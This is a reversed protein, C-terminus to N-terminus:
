RKRLAKDHDRYFIKPHLNTTTKDQNHRERKICEEKDPFTRDEKDKKKEGTIDVM